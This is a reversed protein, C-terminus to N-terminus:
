LCLTWLTLPAYEIHDWYGNALLPNRIVSDSGHVEMCDFIYKRNARCDPGCKPSNCKPCPFHCGPCNMILCDCLNILSEIHVGRSDYVAGPVKRTIQTNYSKRTVKRRERASKEPDFNELFDQNDKSLRLAAQSRRRTVPPAPPSDGPPPPM